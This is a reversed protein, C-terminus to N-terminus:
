LLVKSIFVYQASKDGYLLNLNISSVGMIKEDLWISITCILVNIISNIAYIIINM